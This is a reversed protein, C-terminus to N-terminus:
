GRYDASLWPVAGEIGNQLSTFVEDKVIAIYRQPDVLQPVVPALIFFSLRYGYTKGKWSTLTQDM